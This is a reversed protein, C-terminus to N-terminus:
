GADSLSESPSIREPRDRGHERALECDEPSNGMMSCVAGCRACHYHSGGYDEECCPERGILDSLSQGSM